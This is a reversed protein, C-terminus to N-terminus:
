ADVEISGLTVTGEVEFKRKWYFTLNVILGDALQSGKLDVVHENRPHALLVRSALIVRDRFVAIM